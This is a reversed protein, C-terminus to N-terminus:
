FCLKWECQAQLGGWGVEWPSPFMLNHGSGQIVFDQRSKLRTGAKRCLNQFTPESYWEELVIKIAERAKNQPQESVMFSMKINPCEFTHNRICDYRFIVRCHWWHESYFVEYFLNQEYVWLVQVLGRDWSEPVERVRQALHTQGTLLGLQVLLHDRCKKCGVTLTLPCNYEPSPLLM